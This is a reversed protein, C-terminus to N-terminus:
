RNGLVFEARDQVSTEPLTVLEYGYGEYATRVADFTRVAEDFSQRREADLAYIATWPPAIFVRRRYPFARIAADVHAPVPWGLLRMYGAIDPVGRDFFIAPAPDREAARYSRMEWALM